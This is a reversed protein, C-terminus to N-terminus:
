YSIITDCFAITTYKFRDRLCQALIRHLDSCHIKFDGKAWHYLAQSNVLLGKYPVAVITVDLPLWNWISWYSLWFLPRGILSLNHTCIRGPTGIEFPSSANVTICYAKLKSFAPCYRAPRGIKIDPLTGLSAVEVGFGLPHTWNRCRIGNKPQSILLLSDKAPRTARVVITEILCCTM